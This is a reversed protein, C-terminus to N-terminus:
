LYSNSKPHEYSKKLPEHIAGSAQLCEVIVNSLLCVAITQKKISKLIYM